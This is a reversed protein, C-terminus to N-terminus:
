NKETEDYVFLSDEFTINSMDHIAKNITLTAELKNPLVYNNNSDSFSATVNYIGANTKNNNTYSVNVKTSNRFNNVRLHEM